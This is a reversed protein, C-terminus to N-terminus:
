IRILQSRPHFLKWSYWYEDSIMVIELDSQIPGSKHKGRVDWITGTTRDKLDTGEGLELDISSGGVIARFANVAKDRAVLFLGNVDNKVM